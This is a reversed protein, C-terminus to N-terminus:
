IRRNKITEPDPPLDNRTWYRGYKAATKDDVDHILSVKPWLAHMFRGEHNEYCRQLAWLCYDAVQLGVFDWPHAPQITITTEKQIGQEEFLKQRAMDLQTRLSATRDSKGRRAFTIHVNEHQHLRNKFLMRVTLDYLENPHYRYASHMQNRSRVYDLVVRMDKIVAYFKFDQTLLTEFVKARVEAHDDKAHFFRATKGAEPRLTHISAYLPHSLLHSRLERLASEVKQQDVLQVMGLIFFRRADDDDLRNRGRQGFLVGDGAEDVFYNVTEVSISKPESGEDTM